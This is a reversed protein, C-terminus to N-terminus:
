LTIVEKPRVQNELVRLEQHLNACARDEAEEKGRNHIIHELTLRNRKIVSEKRLGNAADVRRNQRSLRHAHFGQRQASAQREGMEAYQGLWGQSAEVESASQPLTQKETLRKLIM